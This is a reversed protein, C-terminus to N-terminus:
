SDARTSRASGHEQSGAYRDLLDRVRGTGGGKLVACRIGRKKRGSQTVGSDERPSMNM